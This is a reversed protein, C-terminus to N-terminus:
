YIRRHINKFPTQRTRFYSTM